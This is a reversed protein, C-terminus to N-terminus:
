RPEGTDRRAALGGLVEVVRQRSRAPDRDLPLFGDPGDALFAPVSLEAPSPPDGRLGALVVAACACRAVADVLEARDPQTLLVPRLGTGVLGLALVLAWSRAAPAAPLCVLVRQEGPRATRQRMRFALLGELWGDLWQRELKPLKAAAGPLRDLLAMAQEGSRRMAFTELVADMGDDDLAALRELLRELAPGADAEPQPLPLALLRTARSISIGQDILRMAARLREVDALSYLRHGGPTREPLVLRYRREWARITVPNIGTLRSVVRIPFLAAVAEGGGAGVWEGAVPDIPGFRTADPRM